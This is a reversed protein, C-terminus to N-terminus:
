SPDILSDQLFDYGLPAEPDQTIVWVEITNTTEEVALDYDLNGSAGLLDVARGNRFEDLVLSWSNPLVFIEAPAPGSMKRLGQAVGLGTIEDRQYFSWATAYLIMWSGDYAHPSFSSGLPESFTSTYSAAFTNYPPTAPSFPRSGRIKAYLESADLTGEILQPDHSADAFFIGGVLTTTFQEELDPSAIASNVFSVYDAIDSTLFLVEEIDGNRIGEAVTAVQGSFDTGADFPYETPTQGGLEVFRDIFLGSLSDGYAGTQYIIAVKTIGRGFVDAAIVRGQLSDPPATRWLFGPNEDTPSTNDLATLSPSTASPSMVVIKADRVANFTAETRASGRPGVIAPVGVVEALFPALLEVAAIDSLGDVMDINEDTEYDCHLMAYKRGELGNNENVQRIALETAQLTDNHAAFSYLSGIIIHDRYADPETRLGEPFSKGCRAPLEQEECFGTDDNCSWTFAFAGRCEANSTCETRDVPNPSCALAGFALAGVFADVRLRPQMM